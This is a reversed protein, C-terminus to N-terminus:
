QWAERATRLSQIYAIIAQLDADNWMQERMPHKPRTIFQHLYAPDGGRTRAIELFGPASIYDGSDADLVSRPNPQASTVRHCASCADVAIERGMAIERNEQAGDAACPVLLLASLVIGKSQLWACKVATAM